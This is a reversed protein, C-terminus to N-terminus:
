LEINRYKQTNVRDVTRTRAEFFVQNLSSPYVLCVAIPKSAATFYARVQIIYFYLFISIYFYLLEIRPEGNESCAPISEISQSVTDKELLNTRLYLCTLLIFIFIHFYPCISIYFYIFISIHFYPFM